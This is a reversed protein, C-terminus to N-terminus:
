SLPLAASEYLAPRPNLDWPHSQPSAAFGSRRLFLYGVRDVVGGRDIKRERREGVDSGGVVGACAGHEARRLFWMVRPSAAFGSRRLFLYGVRDVVGGRDM